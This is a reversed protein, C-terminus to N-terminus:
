EESVCCCAGKTRGLARNIVANACGVGAKVTIAAVPCNKSCAGCEMCADLERIQARGDQMVFVAHPCVEICMGCGICKDACLQLTVVDPLYILRSM